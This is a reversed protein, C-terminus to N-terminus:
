NIKCGNSQDVGNSEACAASVTQMLNDRRANLYMERFARWAMDLDAECMSSNFPSQNATAFCNQDSGQPCTVISTAAGWMTLQGVPAGLDRVQTLRTNMSSGLPDPDSNTANILNYPSTHTDTPNLYGKALAGQYTDVASFRKEWKAALSDYHQLKCYEPHYPLLSEAWSAKFKQSFATPSLEQPKVFTGAAEDYVSDLNGLEDRYDVVSRYKATMSPNVDVNSYFISYVDHDASDLNAYQGSPAMMDALMASRIDNYDNTEECLAACNALAEKYSNLAQTTYAATDTTIGAQQLFTTRFNEWTGISAKCSECDAKCTSDAAILTRQENIFDEISQCTNQQKFVHDRYYDAGQRSVSLQKTIEYSGEELLKSFTFSFGEGNCSGDVSAINFNSM